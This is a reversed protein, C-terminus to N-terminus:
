QVGSYPSYPTFHSICNSYQGTTNSHGSDKWTVRTCYRRLQLHLFGQPEIFEIFVRFEDDMTVHGETRSLLCKNIGLPFENRTQMTVASDTLM